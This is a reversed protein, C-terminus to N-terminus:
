LELRAQRVTESSGELVEGIPRSRQKGAANMGYALRLLREFGAPELHEKRGLGCVIEAFLRFDQEKVLLPHEDFFPLIKSTLTSVGSVAYTLM